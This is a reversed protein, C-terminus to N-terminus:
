FIYIYIKNREEYAAPQLLVGLDSSILNSMTFLTLANVDDYRSTLCWNLIVGSLINAVEKKMIISLIIKM